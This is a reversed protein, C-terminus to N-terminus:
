GIYNNIVQAWNQVRQNTLKSQNDEDIVLGIFNGDILAKSADFEYDSADNRDAIIEGGKEVIKEYLIGMGDVFTDCYSEQDGVGFLAVKKGQFNVKELEPFFTDWDDQLDGDGLTSTGLILLDATEFDEVSARSVDLIKAEATLNKAIKEAVDQTTGNTSGYIITIQM